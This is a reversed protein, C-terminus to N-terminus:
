GGSFERGHVGDKTDQYLIPRRPNLQNQVPPSAARDSRLSASGDAFLLPRRYSEKERDQAYALEADYMLVKASPMAVDSPGLARLDATTAQFTSSWVRPSAIFSSSYRYSPVADNTAVVGGTWLSEFRAPDARPSLWVRYHENWPAIRQVLAHWYRDISWPMFALGFVAGGPAPEILAATGFPYREYDLTYQELTLSIQRLNSTSLTRYVSLRVSAIAPLSLSVVLAIISVVALVEILTFGRHSPRPAM